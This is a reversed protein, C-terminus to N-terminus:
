KDKSTAPFQVWDKLKLFLGQSLFALLSTPQAPKVQTLKPMAPVVNGLIVEKDLELNSLQFASPLLQQTPGHSLSVSAYPAQHAGTELENEENNSGM